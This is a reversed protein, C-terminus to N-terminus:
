IRWLALEPNEIDVEARPFRELAEAPPPNDCGVGEIDFRSLAPADAFM